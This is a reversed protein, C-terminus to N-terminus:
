TLITDVKMIYGAPREKSKKNDKGATLVFAGNM